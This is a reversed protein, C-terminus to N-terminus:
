RGEGEQVLGAVPDVLLEGIRRHGVPNPHGDNPIQTVSPDTGMAADIPVADIDAADLAPLDLATLDAGLGILLFEAGDRRVEAALEKILRATLAHPPDLAPPPPPPPDQGGGAPPMPPEGDGEPREHPADAAPPSPPPPAPAGNPSGLGYLRRVVDPNRQLRETVFSFFASRDSLNTQLWCFARARVGDVRTVEGGVLRFESCQPYDPVPQAVLRLSGDPGVHFAPKGYLRRMRHLVTNDEPDNITTHYLVVDPDLDDLRDRYLLLAQDTGYGRVGGNIVQVPVNLRRELREQLVAVYTEEEEVEFGATWSDGLVLVRVGNAPVPELEPGRLGLENIRVDSRYEIPFPRPGVFEGTSGPELSWGLDADYRVFSDPSSYVDYVPRYGFLRFVVEVLVLTLIVMVGVVMLRVTLARLRRRWRPRRELVAPSPAVVDTDADADAAAGCDAPENGEDVVAPAAGVTQQPRM